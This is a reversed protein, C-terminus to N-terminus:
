RILHDGAEDRYELISNELSPIKIIYFGPKRPQSFAGSQFQILTPPNNNLTLTGTFSTLVPNAYRDRVQFIM